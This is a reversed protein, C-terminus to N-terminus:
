PGLPQKSPNKAQQILVRTAGKMNLEPSVDGYIGATTVLTMACYLYIWIRSIASINSHGEV